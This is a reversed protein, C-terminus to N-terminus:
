SLKAASKKRHPEAKIENVRYSGESHRSPEERVVCRPNVILEEFLRELRDGHLVVLKSSFGIEIKGGEVLTLWRLHPRPFSYVKGDRREFRMYSTHFSTRM